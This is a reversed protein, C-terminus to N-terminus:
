ETAIDKPDLGRRRARDVLDQWYKKLRKRNQEEFEERDIYSGDEVANPPQDLYQYFGHHVSSKPLDEELIYDSDHYIGESRDEIGNRNFDRFEMTQMPNIVMKKGDKDFKTPPSTPQNRLVKDSNSSRDPKSFERRDGLGLSKALRDAEGREGERYIGESRDEIGNRNEDRFEQTQIGGSGSQGLRDLITKARDHHSLAQKGTQIKQIMRQRRLEPTDINPEGLRMTEAALAMQAAQATYGKRRLRRAANRLRGSAPGVRRAPQNLVSGSGFKYNPDNSRIDMARLASGHESEFLANQAAEEPSSSKPATAFNSPRIRNKDMFSNFQEESVGAATARERAQRLLDGTLAGRRSLDELGSAIGQRTSLQSQSQSQPQSQPQSEEEEEIAPAPPNLYPNDIQEDDGLTNPAGSMGKGYKETNATATKKWYDNTSPPEDASMIRENATRRGVPEPKYAPFVDRLDKQLQTPPNPDKGVRGQMLADNFEGDRTAPTTDYSTATTAPPSANMGSGSKKEEQAKRNKAEDIKKKTELLRERREQDKDM